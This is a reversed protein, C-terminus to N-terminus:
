HLETKIRLDGHPRCFNYHVCYLNLQCALMKREKKKPAFTWLEDFLIEHSELDSLFVENVNTLHESVRKLLNTVTDRHVGTIRETGRIGNGKLFLKLILYVKERSIKLHYYPTGKNDL